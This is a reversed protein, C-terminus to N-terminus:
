RHIMFPHHILNKRFTALNKIEIENGITITDPSVMSESLVMWSNIEGIEFGLAISHSPCLKQIAFIFLGYLGCHRLIKQIVIPSIGSPM